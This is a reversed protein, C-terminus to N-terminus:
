RAAGAAPRRRLAVASELYGVVPHDPGCYRPTRAIILPTDKWKNPTTPDAGAEVLLRAVRVLGDRDHSPNRECVMMLQHLAANGESDLKWNPNWGRHLYLKLRNEDLVMLADFFEPSRPPPLGSDEIQVPRVSRAKPPSRAAVLGVVVAVGLGAAVAMVAASPSPRGSRPRTQAPASAPGAAATGEAALLRYGIKPLTELTFPAPTISRELLRVKAIARGVADDSVVRGQWCAEILADRTVTAGRARALTILVATTLAEVRIEQDRVFARGTSPSVRLEGLFFDAEEALRRGQAIDSM